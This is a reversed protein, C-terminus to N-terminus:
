NRLYNQFSIEIRFSEPFIKTQFRNEWETKGFFYKQVESGTINVNFKWDSLAFMHVPFRFSFQKHVRSM